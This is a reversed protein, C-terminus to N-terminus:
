KERRRGLLIDVDGRLLDPEYLSLKWGGSIPDPDYQYRVEWGIQGAIALLEGRAAMGNSYGRPRPWGPPQVIRPQDSM